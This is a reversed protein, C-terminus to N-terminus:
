GLNNYYILLSWVVRINIEYWLTIKSSCSSGSAYNNFTHSVTSTNSCYQCTCVDCLLYLQMVLICTLSQGCLYCKHCTLETKNGSKLKAVVKLLFVPSAFVPSIGIM